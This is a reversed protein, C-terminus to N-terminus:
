LGEGPEDTPEAPTKPAAKPAAPAPAAKKPKNELQDLDGNDNPTEKAGPAAGKKDKAEADKLMREQQKAAKEMREAEEVARKEEERAALTAEAERMLGMVGEGDTAGEGGKMAIYKRYLEIAREPANKHRQLIIGRNLYIAALDPNIKEANEYEVMAKDFQGMGKYAIGLNLHLDASRGDAQLLKRLHEEAGPFDEAELAMKALMAQAPQFDPRAEVAKLFQSRAKQPEGEKFLIQGLAFYLEPDNEDIKMARLAVLRAMALQKRDLYSHMMVKYATINKPDRVLAGRAYELAREHENSQRYIEALRARSSADDPYNELVQQYIGVAGAVDGGNQAMVALNEAAQTLSPKKRLASKYFAIAEDKKGRREALVGLNYDAEALKTDAESAAQFKREVAALDINKGKKMGEMSKVADEFLLKARSSIQPQQAPAPTGPKGSAPQTSDAAETESVGPGEVEVGRSAATSSACGVASIAATLVTFAIRLPSM